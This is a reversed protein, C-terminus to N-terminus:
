GSVAVFIMEAPYKWICTPQPDAHILVPPRNLWYCGTVVFLSPARTSTAGLLSGSGALRNVWDSQKSTVGCSALAVLM